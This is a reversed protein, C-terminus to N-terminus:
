IWINSLFLIQFVGITCQFLGGGGAGAAFLLTLYHLFGRIYVCFYQIFYFLFYQYHMFCDQSFLFIKLVPVFLFKLFCCNNCRSLPAILLSSLSFLALPIDLFTGCPVPSKPLPFMRLSLLQSNELIWYLYSDVSKILVTLGFCSFFFDVDLCIWLFQLIFVCSDELLFWSSIVSEGYLVTPLNRLVLLLHWILLFTGEFQQLLLVIM